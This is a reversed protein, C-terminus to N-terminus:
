SMENPQTSLVVHVGPRWATEFPAVGGADVLAVLARGTSYADSNAGEISNWGGDSQQTALLEKALRARVTQSSGAWSLAMLQQSREESNRAANKELWQQAKHVRALTDASLSPHRYLQIARMATATASFPGFSQPPRMDM